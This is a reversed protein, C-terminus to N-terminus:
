PPSSFLFPKTKKKPQFFLLVHPLLPALSSKSEKKTTTQNPSFPLSGLAKTMEEKYKKLNNDGQLCSKIQEDFHFINQDIILTNRKLYINSYSIFISTYTM